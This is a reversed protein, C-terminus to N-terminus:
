KNIQILNIATKKASEAKQKSEQYRAQVTDSRDFDKSRVLKDRYSKLNACDTYWKGYEQDAQYIQDCIHRSHDRALLNALTVAVDNLSIDKYLLDNDLWLNKLYGNSEILIRGVLIGRDTKIPLIQNEKQLKLYASIVLNEFRKSIETM